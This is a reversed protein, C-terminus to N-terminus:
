IIAAENMLMPSEDTLELPLRLALALNKSFTALLNTDPGRGPLLRRASKPLRPEVRFQDERPFEARITRM